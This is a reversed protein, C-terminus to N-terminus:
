TPLGRRTIKLLRRGLVILLVAAFAGLSDFGVDFLRGDRMFFLQLIETLVAYVLSSLFNLFPSPFVFYLALTFIFFVMAHGAKRLLFAASLDAPLPELMKEAPPELTWNFQINKTEAMADFSEACTCIFIVGAWVILFILRM